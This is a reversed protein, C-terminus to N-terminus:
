RTITVLVRATGQYGGLPDFPLFVGEIGKTRPRMDRLPIVDGGRDAALEGCRRGSGTFVLRGQYLIGYRAQKPSLM